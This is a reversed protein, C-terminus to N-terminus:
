YDYGSHGALPDTMDPHETARHDHTLHPRPRHQFLYPEGRVNKLTSRWYRYLYLYVYLGFLVASVGTLGIAISSGLLYEIISKM